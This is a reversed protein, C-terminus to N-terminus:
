RPRTHPRADLWRQWADADHEGLDQGSATKLIAYAFDHNNPQALRLMDVLVPGAADVIQDGEGPRSALGSLIASAKNRDTTTPMELAALVPALPIDIEPHHMAIMAVVRMANNRVLASPDRFAALELAVVRDGDALHALLYAARARELEDADDALIAALAAEQAPVRAVVADRYPTLSPDAFTFCHRAPCDVDTKGGHAQIVPWMKDEYEGWLALLGNPDGHHGTPTPAYSM